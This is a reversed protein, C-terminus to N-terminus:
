TILGGMSLGIIHAKDIKYHNLVCIADDAIDSMLYAHKNEPNAGPATLPRPDPLVDDFKHGSGM